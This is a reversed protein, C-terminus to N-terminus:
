SDGQGRGEQREHSMGTTTPLKQISPCGCVEKHLFNHEVIDAFQAKCAALANEEKTFSVAFYVAAYSM